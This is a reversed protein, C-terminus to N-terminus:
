TIEMHKKFANVVKELQMGRSGKFLVADGTKIEALLIEAIGDHETCHMWGIDKGSERVEEGTFRAMEGYTILRDIKSDGIIKGIQRHLTEAREGLELMDGFVMWRRAAHVTDLLEIARAASAPNANYSDDIVTIDGAMFVATRMEPLRLSQACEVAKDFGVGYEVSAAIAVAANYVNHIGPVSLKVDRGDIKFRPQGDGEIEIGSIVYEMGERSGVRVLRGGFKRALFACNEDDMNIVAIGDASALYDLMEGKARRVNEISGLGELHAESINNLVGIDPEAIECLREIEGLESMGLELVAVEAGTNIAFISLPLGYRNNYNGISGVASYKSLLIQLIFEKVTTKGNTGTVAIVGPNIKRLHRNAIDGLFHLTDGTKFVRTGPPIDRTDFDDQIVIGAAGNEIARSIYKHGDTRHGKVAVFLDGEKITRSDISIGDFYFDERELESVPQAFEAIERVSMISM